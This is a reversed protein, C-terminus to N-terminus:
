SKRFLFREGPKMVITQVGPALESCKRLYAGPDGNHEVFMWFHSAIALRPGVDRTLMAAEASSLNGFAGNICPILIDPQMDIAPQFERPRYATDGTHYVKIGDLDLVVGLADPALEGHDAFTGTLRVGALELEKGEELLHRRGDPIGMKEFEKFCNAPGAFHTRPHRAIVPLADLDLHDPHEHTTVVLDAVVEEAKIPCAMMRRFGAVREVLDSIYPDVYVIGGSPTKFVFGAQALWYVALGGSEIRDEIIREALHDVAGAPGSAGQRHYPDPTTAARSREALRRVDKEVIRGGAGSPTVRAIDVGLEKALRKARPSASPGEGRETTRSSAPPSQEAAPAEAVMQTTEAARAPAQVIEAEDGPKEIYAIVTGVPVEKGTEVVIQALEGEILSEVEMDAKDTSVVFLMEGRAVPEGPKKLWTSVSGETMTLGLQPMVVPVRMAFERQQLPSKKM